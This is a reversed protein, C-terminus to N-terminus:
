AKLGELYAAVVDKVPRARVGLAALREVSANPPPLPSADGTFKLWWGGVAEFVRAIEANTTLQGAAVNFVDPRGSAAVNLAILTRTSICVPSPMRTMASSPGKLVHTVDVVRM